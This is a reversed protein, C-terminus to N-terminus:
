IIAIRGSFNLTGGSYSVSISYTGLMDLTYGITNPFVLNFTASSASPISVGAAPDIASPMVTGGQSTFKASTVTVAGATSSGANSLVVSLV